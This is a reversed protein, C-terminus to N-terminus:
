LLSIRKAWPPRLSRIYCFTVKFEQNEKGRRVLIPMFYSGRHKVQTLKSKPLWQQQLTKSLSVPCTACNLPGVAPNTCPPDIGGFGEWCSLACCGAWKWHGSGSCESRLELMVELGKRVEEPGLTCLSAHEWPLDTPTVKCGSEENMIQEKKTEFFVSDRSEFLFREM